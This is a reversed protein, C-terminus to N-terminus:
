KLRSLVYDIVKIGIEKQDRWGGWYENTTRKWDPHWETYLRLWPSGYVDLMALLQNQERDPTVYVNVMIEILMLLWAAPLIWYLYWLKSALVMFGIHHFLLPDRGKYWPKENGYQDHTNQCLFLRSAHSYFLKRNLDIRNIKHLGAMLCLLQDRTFSRPDDNNLQIDKIFSQYPHRVGLGEETVFKHIVEKSQTDGVLALMGVGRASDGGCLYGTPNHRDHQCVIGHEDYVIM